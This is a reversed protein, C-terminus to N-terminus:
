CVLVGTACRERDRSEPDDSPFSHLDVEAPTGTSAKFSNSCMSRCVSLYM